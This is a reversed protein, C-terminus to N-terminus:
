GISGATHLVPAPWLSSSPSQLAMGNGTGRGPSRAVAATSPAHEGSTDAPITAMAAGRNVDATTLLEVSGMVLVLSVPGGGPGNGATGAGGGALAPYSSGGGGGRMGHGTAGTGTVATRLLLVVDASPQDTDNVYAHVHPVVTGGMRYVRLGAGGGGGGGGCGQTMLSSGITMYTSYGGPITTHAACRPMPSPIGSSAGGDDLPCQSLVSVAPCILGLGTVAAMTAPPGNIGSNCSKAVKAALSALLTSELSFPRAKWVRAPLEGGLRRGCMGTLQFSHVGSAVAGTAGLGALPLQPPSPQSTTLTCSFHDVCPSSGSPVGGSLKAAFLREAFAQQTLSRTAARLVPGHATPLRSLSELGAVNGSLATNQNGGQVCGNVTPVQPQTTTAAPQETLLFGYQPTGRMGPVYPVLALRVAFDVHLESALAETVASSICSAIGQLDPATALECAALTVRQIDTLHPGMCCEAVSAAVGMLLERKIPPAQAAVEGKRSAGDPTPLAPKLPPPPAAATAAVMLLAGVLDTGLRLPVLYARLAAPPASPKVAGVTDVLAGGGGSGSGAAAVAEAAMADLVQRWENPPPLHSNTRGKNASQDALPLLVHVEWAPGHRVSDTGQWMLVDPKGACQAGPPYPARAPSGLIVLGGSTSSIAGVAVVAASGTCGGVGTGLWPEPVPLVHGPSMVGNAGSGATGLLVLVSGCPSAGFLCVQGVPGCAALVSEMCARIRALWTGQVIALQCRLTSLTDHVTHQEQRGSSAECAEVAVESDKAGPSAKNPSLAKFEQHLNAAALKGGFCCLVM